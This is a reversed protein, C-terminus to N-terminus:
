SGSPLSATGAPDTGAVDSTARCLPPVSLSM